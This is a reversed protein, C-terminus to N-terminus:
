IFFCLNIYNMLKRKILYWLYVIKFSMSFNSKLLSDLYFYDTQPRYSKSFMLLNYIILKKYLSDFAMTNIKSVFDKSFPHVFMSAGDTCKIYSMSCFPLYMAKRFSLVRLSFEYDENYSLDEDYGGQLKLVDKHFITNGPRSYIERYWISKIPNNVMFNHKIHSYSVVKNGDIIHFNSIFVYVDPYEKTAKLFFKLAHAEMVDDADFFMIWIGSANLLGFNRASSVGGNSKHFLKIRNDDISNVVSYSDDISGDDVVIIEFNQVNQQLISNLTSKITKEKNYLPIIISLLIKEKMKEKM